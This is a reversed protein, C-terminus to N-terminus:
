SVFFYNRYKVVPKRLGTEVLEELLYIICYTYQFTRLIDCEYSTDGIQKHLLDDNTLIFNM